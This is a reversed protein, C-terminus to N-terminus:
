ALQIERGDIALRQALSTQIEFHDRDTSGRCSQACLDRQGSTPGIAFVHDPVAIQLDGRRREGPNVQDGRTKADKLYKCQQLPCGIRLVDHRLGEDVDLLVEVSDNALSGLRGVPKGRGGTVLRLGDSPLLGEAADTDRTAHIAELGM